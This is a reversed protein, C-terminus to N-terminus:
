TRHSKIWDVAFDVIARQDSLRGGGAGVPGVREAGTAAFAEGLEAFDDEDLELDDWEFWRVVGDAGRRPAGHTATRKLPWTARYEALHLSTNNGHDVELLLVRADLDYLRALPSTEGLSQEWPHEGVGEAAAPGNAIFSMQPHTSRRTTPLARMVEVVAGMLRPPTLDPDFPPMAARVDDHWAAPIPPDAWNAPDSVAGSHSPM